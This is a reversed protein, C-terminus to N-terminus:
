FCPTTQSISQDGLTQSVLISQYLPIFRDSLTQGCTNLGVRMTRGQAAQVGHTRPTQASASAFSACLGAGSWQRPATWGSSALGRCGDMRLIGLPSFHTKSTASTATISPFGPDRTWPRQCSSGNFVRRHTNLVPPKACGNVKLSSCISRSKTVSGLDMAMSRLDTTFFSRSPAEVLWHTQSPKPTWMGKNPTNLMSMGGLSRRVRDVFDWLLSPESPRPRCGKWCAVCGHATSRPATPFRLHNAQSWSATPSRILSWSLYIFLDPWEGLATGLPM